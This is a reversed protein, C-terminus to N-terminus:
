SVAQHFSQFWDSDGITDNVQLHPKYIGKRKERGVLITRSVRLKEDHMSKIHGYWGMRRKEVEMTIDKMTHMIERIITNKIRIM